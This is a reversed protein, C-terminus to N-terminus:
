PTASPKPTITPSPTASPFRTQTAIPTKSIAPTNTAPAPTPSRLADARKQAEDRMAQSVAKEPLDLLARWDRYAADAENLNELSIARYYYLQGRQIDTEVLAELPLLALAYANNYSGLAIYARALGVGADFSGQNFQKAKKFDDLAKENEGQKLYIEARWLFSESSKEDLAISKNISILAEDLRDEYYYAQGLALFAEANDPSYQVYTELLSVSKNLEGNLRYASGLVLYSELNTLDLQNAKEAALVAEDYNGKALAVKALGLQAIPSGPLLTAAKRFDSLAADTNNKNLHYLGRHIYAEAYNDDLKIAADLDNLVNNRPNQALKTLARGLYNPAFNSNIVIAQQYTDLAEEYRGSLRYSEAIFYIADVSGPQATAVQAMMIAVMEWQGNNYARMAGRYSDLAVDGHPTAAYIPTPTYPESILGALPSTAGAGPTPTRQSIATVTATFTGGSSARQTRLPNLPTNATFGWIVGGVLGAGIILIAALRFIPNGTLAKIGTVKPKDDVVKLKEEWSRPHNMPFPQISDDAPLAGLLLLGRRAAANTPDVKYAAQLCYLREKQTEMAASMWVWYTANNQDTKLLRTLTDRASSFKRQRIDDIAQELLLEEPSVESPLFDSM